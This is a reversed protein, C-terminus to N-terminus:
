KVEELFDRIMNEIVHNYNVGDRISKELIYTIVNEPLEVEFTEKVESIIYYQKILGLFPTIEDGSKWDLHAAKTGMVIEFFVETVDDGNLRAVIKAGDESVLSEILNHDQFSIQGNLAELLQHKKM